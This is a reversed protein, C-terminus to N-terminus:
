RHLLFRIVQSNEFSHPSYFLSSPNKLNPPHLPSFSSAPVVFVLRTDARSRKPRALASTESQGASFPGLYLLWVDRKAQFPLAAEDGGSEDQRAWAQRSRSSEGLWGGVNRGVVKLTATRTHM